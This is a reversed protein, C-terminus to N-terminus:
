QIYASAKFKGILARIKNYRVTDEGIISYKTIHQIWLMYSGGAFKYYKYDDEFRGKFYTDSESPIQKVNLWKKM